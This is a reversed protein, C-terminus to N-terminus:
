AQDKVGVRIRQRDGVEGALYLCAVGYLKGNNIEDADTEQLAAADGNSCSGGGKAELM